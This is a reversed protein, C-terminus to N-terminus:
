VIWTVPKVEGQPAPDEELLKILGYRFEEALSSKYVTVTSQFASRTALQQPLYEKIALKINLTM